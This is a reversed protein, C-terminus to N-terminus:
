HIGTKWAENGKEAYPAKANGPRRTVRLARRDLVREADALSAGERALKVSAFYILDAAEEASREPGEAECLEGAEEAIKASILGPESFLRATYSGAPAGGARLEALRRGTTRSLLAFGREDGGLGNPGAPGFCTMTGRHCFGSGAQRVTFRLADRDCDADIRVLAQTDGSSSGKRWLGRRRSRYVGAREAIAARLSELDSYALGLAVGAEDCVVTPWLGDPRDSGLCAALAEAPDLLGKYLAMGVQADAGAADLAAVEAASVIGGAITVSGRFGSDRIAGITLRAADLDVGSLSGEIDIATVLFGGVYAGLEAAKQVFSSGTSSRWGDAMVVGKRNDLAAVLRDRPFGSLFEPSAMTGVMVSRAGADLLRTMTREDRVGGGVRAPYRSAITEVLDLNSGKGLAADLDVVAIEGLVSFREALELPDGGDLEFREGGVLQVARGGMIDISPILM